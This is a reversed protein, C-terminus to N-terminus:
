PFSTLTKTRCFTHMYMHVTHIYALLLGATYPPTFENIINNLSKICKKFINYIIQVM